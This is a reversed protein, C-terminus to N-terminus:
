RGLWKQARISRLYEPYSMSPDELEGKALAMVYDQAARNLKNSLGQVAEATAGSGELAASLAGHTVAIQNEISGAEGEGTDMEGAPTRRARRLARQYVSRPNITVGNGEMQGLWDEATQLQERGTLPVTNLDRNHSLLGARSLGLAGAVRPTLAAATADGGGRAEAMMRAAIAPNNAITADFDPGVDAFVSTPDNAMADAAIKDNTRPGREAARDQGGGRDARPVRDGGMGLGPSLTTSPPTITAPEPPAPAAGDPAGWGPLSGLQAQWDETGPPTIAPAAAAQAAAVQDAVSPPQTAAPFGSAEGLSPLSLGPGGTEMGVLPAKSVLDTLYTTFEPPLQRRSSIIYGNLILRDHQDLGPGQAKEILRAIEPPVQTNRDV